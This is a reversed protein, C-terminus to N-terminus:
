LKYFKDDDKAKGTVLSLRISMNKYPTRKNNVCETCDVPETQTCDLKEGYMSINCRGGLTIITRGSVQEGVKKEPSTRLVATPETGPNASEIFYVPMFYETTEIYRRRTM